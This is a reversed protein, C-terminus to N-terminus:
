KKIQNTLITADKLKENSVNIKEFLLLKQCLILTAM